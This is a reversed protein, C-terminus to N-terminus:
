LDAYPDKPIRLPQRPAPKSPEGDDLTCVGNPQHQCSRVSRVVNVFGDRVADRGTPWSGLVVLLPRQAIQIVVAHTEHTADAASTVRADFGVGPLQGQETDGWAARERRIARAAGSLMAADLKVPLEAAPEGLASAVV